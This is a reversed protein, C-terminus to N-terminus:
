KANSELAKLQQEIVQPNPYITRLSELIQVAEGTERKEQLLSALAFGARARLAQPFVSKDYVERLLSEAELKKGLRLRLLGLELSVRAELEPALATAAAQQVLALAAAEDHAELRSHAYELVIDVRLAQPLADNDLLRAYLVGAKDYEKLVARMRAARLLLKSITQPDGGYELLSSELLKVTKAPANRVYQSIDALREWAELRYKGKPYAQLYTEYGEEARLYEGDIFASRAAVVLRTEGDSKERCGAQGLLLLSLGAFAIGILFRRHFSM